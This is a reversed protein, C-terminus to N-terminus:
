TIFMSSSIIAFLFSDPDLATYLQDSAIVDKSLHAATYFLRTESVVRPIAVYPESPQHNEQFLHRDSGGGGNGEEKLRKQFHRM